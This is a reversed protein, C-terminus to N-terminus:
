NSLYYALWNHVNGRIFYNLNDLLKSHSVKNFAKAM